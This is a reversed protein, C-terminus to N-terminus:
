RERYNLSCVCRQCIPNSSVDLNARFRTAKDSNLVDGLNGNSVNGVTPHFFCPHVSGDLEVVASTWPANCVPAQPSSLSAHARFHEVIRRLKLPNEVIFGTQIESEFEEILGEVEQELEEIEPFSLGVQQQRNIPWVLKRNFAESTLDAALFSISDLQLMKITRVTDRLHVHNAKQVVTRARIPLATARSRVLSVGAAIREFGNAIGRVRDHLEPPGDISIIVEDFLDAARDAFRSLLLGTTLVTVKIGAERLPACIAALDRHLLPEGGTLVVWRVKLEQFSSLLRQLDGASLERSGDGQWIDCMTCRCNCRSHVHLVVVPLSQITHQMLNQEIASAVSSM